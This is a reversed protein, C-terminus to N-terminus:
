ARRIDVLRAVRTLQGTSTAFPLGHISALLQIELAIEPLTQLRGKLVARKVVGALTDTSSADPTLAGEPTAPKAPSVTGPSASPTALPVDDESRQRKRRPPM